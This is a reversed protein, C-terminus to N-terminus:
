QKDKRKTKIPRTARILKQIATIQRMGREPVDILDNLSAQRLSLDDNFAMVEGCKLCLSIENPRPMAREDGVCTASDMKYGCVPCKSIPLPNQNETNM